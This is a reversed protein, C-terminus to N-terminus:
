APWRGASLLRQVAVHRLKPTCNMGVRDQGFAGAVLESRGIGVGLLELAEGLECGLLFCVLCDDDELSRERQPTSPRELLELILVPGSELDRAQLLEAEDGDFLPDCGLELESVIGLEHGLELLPDGFV